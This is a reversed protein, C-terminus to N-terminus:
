INVSAKLQQSFPKKLAHIDHLIMQLIEKTKSGKLILATKDNEILKPTRNELFKKGRKSKIKRIHRLGATSDMNARHNYLYTILM